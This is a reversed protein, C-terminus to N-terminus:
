VFLDLIERTMQKKSKKAIIVNYAYCKLNLLARQQYDKKSHVKEGFINQFHWIAGKRFRLDGM